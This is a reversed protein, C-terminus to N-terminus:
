IIEISTKSNRWDLSWTAMGVIDGVLLSLIRSGLPPPLSTAPFRKLETTMPRALVSTFEPRRFAKPAEDGVHQSSAGGM